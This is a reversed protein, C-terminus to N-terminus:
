LPHRGNSGARPVGHFGTGLLCDVYIDFNWFDAWDEVYIGKDICRRCYYAGDESRAEGVRYVYVNVGHDHLIEALAYGDGGNNGSGCVVAAPGGFEQGVAALVAEFIREAARGMLEVAPIRETTREDSKRMLEASWVPIM